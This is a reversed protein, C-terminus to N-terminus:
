SIELTMGIKDIELLYTYFNDCHTNHYSEVM